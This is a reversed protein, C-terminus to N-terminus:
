TSKSTGSAGGATPGGATGGNPDIKNAFAVELRFTGGDPNSELSTTVSKCYFLSSKDTMRDVNGAIIRAVPEQYGKSVLYAVREGPSVYTRLFANTDADLFRVDLTDGSRLALLDFTDGAADEATMDVTVATGELEQRSREEYVRKALAMATDYDTIGPVAFIDCDKADNVPKAKGKKGKAATKAKLKQRVAALPNYIAEIAEGAIPDFSTVGVGRLARDNNREESFELLNQGWVLRPPAAATYYDEATTIVLRDRDFYSILGVSGVAQQWIAWADSGPPVHLRGKGRFRPAVASGLVPTSTLGRLEINDYLEWAGPVNDCLRRWAEELTEAFLPIGDTAVPKALLFFSTYDHFELTVSLTDGKSSRAPKVMRGVFRLSADSPELEGGGEVHAMYFECTGGAIWRPDVGADLWDVTVSLTDAHNHDNSVLRATIVPVDYTVPEYDGGTKPVPITLRLLARPRYVRSTM